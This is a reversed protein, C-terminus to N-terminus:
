KLPIVYRDLVTSYDNGNERSLTIVLSTYEPAITWDFPQSAMLNHAGSLFIQEETQQHTESNFGDESIYAEAVLTITDLDTTTHYWIEWIRLRDEPQVHIGDTDITRFDMMQKEDDNVQYVISAFSAYPPSLLWSKSDPGTLKIQTKTSQVVAESGKKYVNVLVTLEGWNDQVRWNGAITDHKYSTPIVDGLEIVEGAHLPVVSTKGIFENDNAYVEAQAQYDAPINESVAVRVDFLKLSIDPEAHIGESAATRLDVMRPNWDGAMFSIGVLNVQLVSASPDFSKSSAKIGETIIWALGGIFLSIGVALFIKRRNSIPKDTEIDVYSSKAGFGLAVGLLGIVILVISVTIPVPLNM